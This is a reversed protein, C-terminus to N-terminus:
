ALMFIMRLPEIFNGPYGNFVKGGSLLCDSSLLLGYFCFVWLEVYRVFLRCAFNLLIYLFCYFFFLFRLLYLLTNM